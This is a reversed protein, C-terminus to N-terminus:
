IPVFSNTNLLQLIKLDEYSLPLSGVPSSPLHSCYAQSLLLAHCTKKRNKHMKVPIQKQGCCAANSSAKSQYQIAM